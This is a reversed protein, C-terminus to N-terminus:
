PVLCTDTTERNASPDYLLSHSVATVTSVFTGAVTSGISFVAAGDAGTVAWGSVTRGNPRTTTVFVKAGAVAQPVPSSDDVITVRTHILYGWNAKTASMEIASVHMTKPKPPERANDVAVKISHSATQGLADVAVAVLEYASDHFRTTDWAISWSDTGRIGSGISTTDVFFEVGTIANAGGATAEITVTGSVNAGDAPNMIRVTPMGTAKRADVLGYGFSTDRGATGLDETAGTLTDRVVVNSAAGAAWVLAAAGAVHPCAMSTGSMEAYVGGKYTSSINVGPAALTIEPGFNSFYALKDQSDTASVALVSPYAAPFRVPGSSNGAAAVLLVGAAFAKDCAEQLSATGGGGLSLSAVRMHNEVCWQLGQIIDSTYGLGDDGLVKVAHLRAGPAVGVVGVGNNLAAVIGACHTGHGHGDNWDAPDTSGDKEPPGAYGVGDVVTLDPHRSDIGSDLIAVDVGAGTNGGPWVLDAEIRHVGWPTSQEFAQLVVDEEVYVVDPRGALTSLAAPSLWASVVPILHFAAHVVGGAQEIVDARDQAAQLEAVPAFGILVRYVPPQIAQALVRPAWGVLAVMSLVVLLLRSATRM